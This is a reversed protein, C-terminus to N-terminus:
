EEINSPISLRLARWLNRWYIIPKWKKCICIFNKERTQCICYWRILPQQLIKVSRLAILLGKETTVHRRTLVEFLSLSDTLIHLPVYKGMIFKQDTLDMYFGNSLAMVDSELVSRPVQEIQLLELIDTPLEEERRSFIRFLRTTISKWREHRIICWYLCCTLSILYWAKIQM